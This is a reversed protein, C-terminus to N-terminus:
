ESASLESRRSFCNTIAATPGDVLLVGSQKEASMFLHVHERAWDPTSRQNRSLPSWWKRCTNRPEGCVNSEFCVIHAIVCSPSTPALSTWVLSAATTLVARQLWPRWTCRRACYSRRCHRRASDPFVDRCQRQYTTVCMCETAMFLQGQM